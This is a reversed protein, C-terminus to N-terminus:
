NGAAALDARQPKHLAKRRSHGQCLNKTELVKEQAWRHMEEYFVTRALFGRGAATGQGGGQMQDPEEGEGEGLHPTLM